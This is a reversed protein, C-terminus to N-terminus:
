EFSVKCCMGFSHVVSHLSEFTIETSLLEKRKVVEIVVADPFMCQLFLYQSIEIYM